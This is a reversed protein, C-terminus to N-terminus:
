VKGYPKMAVLFRFRCSFFQFVQEFSVRIILTGFGHKNVQRM